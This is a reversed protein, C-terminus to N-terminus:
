PGGAVLLSVRHCAKGSRSAAYSNLKGPFAPPRALPSDRARATRLQPVPQVGGSYRPPRQRKAIAAPGSGAVTPYSTWPEEMSRRSRLRRLPQAHPLFVVKPCTRCQVWGIGAGGNATARARGRARGCAARARARARTRGGRRGACSRVRGPEDDAGGGGEREPGVM